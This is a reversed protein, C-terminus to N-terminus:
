VTLKYSEYEAFSIEYMMAQPFAVSQKLMNDKPYVYKGGCYVFIRSSAQFEVESELFCMLSNEPAGYGKSGAFRMTTIKASEINKRFGHPIINDQVFILRSFDVITKENKAISYDFQQAIADTYAIRPLSTIRKTNVISRKQNVDPENNYELSVLGTLWCRQIIESNNKAVDPFDHTLELSRTDTQVISVLNSSVTNDPSFLFCEQWWQTNAYDLDTTLSDKVSSTYIDVTTSSSILETGNTYSYQNQTQITYKKQKETLQLLNQRAEEYKADRQYISYSIVAM